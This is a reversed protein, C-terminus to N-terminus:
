RKLLTTIESRLNSLTTWANSLNTDHWFFKIDHVTHPRGVVESKYRALDSKYSRLKVQLKSKHEKGVSQVEVEM